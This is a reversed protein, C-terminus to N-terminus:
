GAPHILHDRDHIDQQRRQTAHILRREALKASYAKDATGNPVSATAIAMPTVTISENAVATDAPVQECRSVRELERHGDATRSRKPRM